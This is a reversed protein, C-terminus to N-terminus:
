LDPNPQKVVSNGFMPDTAKTRTERVYKMLKRVYEEYKRPLERYLSELRPGFGRLAIELRKFNDLNKNSQKDGRDLFDLSNDMIGHFVGLERYVGPYDQATDLKEAAALRSNMMELALKTHGKIDSEANLKALDEKPIIKLPPPAIEDQNGQAHSTVTSFTFLLLLLTFSGFVGNMWRGSSTRSDCKVLSNIETM